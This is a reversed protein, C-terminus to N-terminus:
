HVPSRDLAYFLEREDAYRAIVAVPGLCEETAEPPLNAATTTLLTPTGRPPPSCAVAAALRTAGRAYADAIDENLM